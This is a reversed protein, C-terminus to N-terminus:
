IECEADGFAEGSVYVGVSDRVYGVTDTGVAVTIEVKEDEFDKLDLKTKCYMYETGDTNNAEKIKCGGIPLSIDLGYGSISVSPDHLGVGEAYVVLTTETGVVSGDEPQQIEIYPTPNKGTANLPLSMLLIVALVLAKM